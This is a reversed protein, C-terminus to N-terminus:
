SESSWFSTQNQTVLTTFIHLKLNKSTIEILIYTCIGFFVCIQGEQLFEPFFLPFLVCFIKFRMKKLKSFDPKRYRGRLFWSESQSLVQPSQEM